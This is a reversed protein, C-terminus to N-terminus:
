KNADDASKHPYWLNTRVMYAFSKMDMSLNTHLKSRNKTQISYQNYKFWLVFIYITCQRSILALSCLIRWGKLNAYLYQFVANTQKTCTRYSVIRQQERDDKGWFRLMKYACCAAFIILKTGNPFHLLEQLLLEKYSQIDVGHRRRQRPPAPFFGSSRYWSTAQALRMYRISIANLVSM